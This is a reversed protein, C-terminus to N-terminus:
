TSLSMGWSATLWLSCSYTRPMQVGAGNVAEPRQQLTADHAAIVVDALVVQRQVQVLERVAVVVALVGFHETVQKRRATLLGIRTDM